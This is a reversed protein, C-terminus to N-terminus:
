SLRRYYKIVKELIEEADGITIEEGLYRPTGDDDEPMETTDEHKWGSGSRVQFQVYRASDYDQLVDFRISYIEGDVDFTGLFDNEGYTKWM